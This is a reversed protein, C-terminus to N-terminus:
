KRLSKCASHLCIWNDGQFPPYTLIFCSINQTFSPSECPIVEPFPIGFPSPPRHRGQSVYFNPTVPTVAWQELDNAKIKKNIKNRQYVQAAFLLFRTLQSSYSIITIHEISPLMSHLTVIQWEEWCCTRQLKHGLKVLVWYFLLSSSFAKLSPEPM